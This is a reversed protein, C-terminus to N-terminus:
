SKPPLPVGVMLRRRHTVVPGPESQSLDLVVGQQPVRVFRVARPKASAATLVTATLSGNREAVGFLTAAPRKPSAASLRLEVSSWMKSGFVHRAKPSMNTFLRADPEEISASSFSKMAGTGIWTEFQPEISSFFCQTPVGPLVVSFM